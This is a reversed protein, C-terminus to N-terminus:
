KLLNRELVPSRTYTIASLNSSRHQRNKLTIASSQVYMGYCPVVPKNALVKCM